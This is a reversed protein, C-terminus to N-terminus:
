FKRQRPKFPETARGRFHDPKLEKPDLLDFQQRFILHRFRNESEQIKQEKDALAQQVAVILADHASKLTEYSDTLQAIHTQTQAMEEQLVTLAQQEPSMAAM